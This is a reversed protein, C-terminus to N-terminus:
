HQSDASSNLCSEMTAGVRTTVAQATVHRESGSVEVAAPPPSTHTTDVKSPTPVSVSVGWRSARRGGPRPLNGPATSPTAAAAAGDRLISIFVMTKTLISAVRTRPVLTM